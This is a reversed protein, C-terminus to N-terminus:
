KNNGTIGDLISQATNKQPEAAKAMAELESKITLTDQELFNPNEDLKLYIFNYICYHLTGWWKPVLNTNVLTSVTADSSTMLPDCLAVVRLVDDIQNDAEFRQKITEQTIKLLYPAPLKADTATKLEETLDSSSRITFEKPKNVKVLFEKQYRMWCQADLSNVLLDFQESSVQMLFSTFDDDKDKIETATVGTPQEVFTINLNTFSKNLCQKVEESLFRLSEVPPDYVGFANGGLQTTDPQTTNEPLKIVYDKGYTFTMSKGSGGCSTCKETAHTEYNEVFGTSNCTSCDEEYYWRTPFAVRNTAAFKTNNLVAAEDLCPLACSFYSYYLVENPDYKVIGKLKWAPLQEWGHYYYEVAEFTWDKQDGTQYIKTISYRDFLEFVLGDKKVRGNVKIESKEKTLLLCYDPKFIFVQDGSYLEAIPQIQESQNVVLEVGNETEVEKTPIYYPKVALVANPDAFKMKHVVDKFFALYNGTQPYNYTFFDKVEDEWEISYNQENYIRYTTGLAKDWYPKTIQKYNDKRYKFEKPSENPAADSLLEEPFVGFEAHYSLHERVEHCFRHADSFHKDKRQNKGWVSLETLIQEIM